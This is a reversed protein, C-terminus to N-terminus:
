SIEHLGLSRDIAALDAELNPLHEILQKTAARLIRTKKIEADLWLLNLPPFNGFPTM